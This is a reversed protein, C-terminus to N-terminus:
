VYDEFEALADAAGADGAAAGARLYAIQAHGFITSSGKGIPDLGSLPNVATAQVPVDAMLFLRKHLKM